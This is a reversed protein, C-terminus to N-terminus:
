MKMRLSQLFAHIHKIHFYVHARKSPYRSLCIASLCVSLCVSLSVSQCVSLCVSLYIIFSLLPSLLLLYDLLFLISLHMSPHISLYFSLYISLPVPPYIIYLYPWLDMPRHISVYISAYISVHFVVFLLCRRKCRLCWTFALSAVWLTSVGFGVCCVWNEQSPGCPTYKKSPNHIKEKFINAWLKGPTMALRPCTVNRTGQLHQLIHQLYQLPFTDM